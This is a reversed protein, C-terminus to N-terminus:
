WREFTLGAVSERTLQGQMERLTRKVIEREIRGGYSGRERPSPFDICLDPEEDVILQLMRGEADTLSVFSGPSVLIEDMLVLVDDLSMPVAGDAPVHREGEYDCYSVRYM